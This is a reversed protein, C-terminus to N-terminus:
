VGGSWPYDEAARVMGAQAPNREVYCAAALIIRRMERVRVLWISGSLPLRTYRRHAEGSARALAWPDKPVAVLHPHTTMVCWEVAEVGFRCVQEAM